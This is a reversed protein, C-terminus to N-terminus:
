PSGKAGTSISTEPRAGPLYVTFTSDFFSDYVFLITLIHFLKGSDCGSKQRCADKICFHNERGYDAVIHHKLLLSGCGNEPFFTVTRVEQSLFFTLVM